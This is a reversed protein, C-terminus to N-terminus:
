SRGCCVKYKRGSGCPCSTNRGVARRPSAPLLPGDSAGLMYRLGLLLWILIPFFAKGMVEFFDDWFRWFSEVGALPHKTEILTIEVKIILFALHSLGLLAVGLALAFCRKKWRMGPTALLLASLLVINAYLGSSEITAEFAPADYCRFLIDAGSLTFHFKKGELAFYSEAGSALFSRYLPQVLQFGLWVAGFFFVVLFTFLLLRETSQPRKEESGISGSFWRWLL